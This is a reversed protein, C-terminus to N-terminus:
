GGWVEFCVCDGDAVVVLVVGVSYVEEVTGLVLFGDVDGYSCGFESAYCGVVIIDASFSEAGVYCPVYSHLVYLDGM